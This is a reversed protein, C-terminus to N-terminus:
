CDDAGARNGVGVTIRTIPETRRYGHPALAVPVTAAHLLGSAVTGVSFRRFVGNSGAGIVILRPASNTPPPM